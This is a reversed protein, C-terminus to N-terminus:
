SSELIAFGDKVHVSKEELNTKIIFRAIYPILFNKSYGKGILAKDTNVHLYDQEGIRQIESVKGLLKENELVSLGIVDFWFFEGEKLTCNQRTQEISTLLITNVLKQALEPNEYGEFRILSRNKTYNSIKLDGRKQTHFITGIKFQEPFDCLIQLKLDGRLGVTRGLKAVELTNENKM